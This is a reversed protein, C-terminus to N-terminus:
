CRLWHRRLGESPGPGDCPRDGAGAWELARLAGVLEGAKGADSATWCVAGTRGAAAADAVDPAGATEVVGTGEDVDAALGVV